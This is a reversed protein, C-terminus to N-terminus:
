VMKLTSRNDTPAIGNLTRSRNDATDKLQPKLPQGSNSENHKRSRNDATNQATTRQKIENRTRSRNNAATMDNKHQATARQSKIMTMVFTEVYGNQSELAKTRARAVGKSPPGCRRAGAAGRASAGKKAGNKALARKPM